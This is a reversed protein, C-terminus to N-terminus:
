ATRISRRRVAERAARREREAQAVRSEAELGVTGTGM